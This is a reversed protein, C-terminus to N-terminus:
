QAGVAPDNGPAPSEGHCLWAVGGHVIRAWKKISRYDMERATDVGIRFYRVALAGLVGRGFYGRQPFDVVGSFAGDVETRTTRNSSRFM